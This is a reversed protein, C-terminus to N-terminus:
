VVIPSEVRSFGLRVGMGCPKAFHSRNSMRSRCQISHSTVQKPSRLWVQLSRALEVVAFSPEDYITEDGLLVRVDADFALLYDAQTAGRLKYTNVQDYTM